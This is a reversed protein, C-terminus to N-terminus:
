CGPLNDLNNNNSRDPTTRLYKSFGERVVIVDVAPAQEYVYYRHTRNEIHGIATDKDVTGWTGCLSTIDGQWNKGSGTVRRDM